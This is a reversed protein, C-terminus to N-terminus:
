MERLDIGNYRALIGARWTSFFQCVQFNTMYKCDEYQKKLFSREGILTKHYDKEIKEILHLVSDIEDKIIEKTTIEKGFGYPDNFVAETLNKM